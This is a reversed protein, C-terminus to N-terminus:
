AFQTQEGFPAPAGTFHRAALCLANRDGPCERSFRGDDKGIFGCSCEILGGAMFDHLQEGGGCAHRSRRKDHNGVIGLNGSPATTQHLDAITPDM